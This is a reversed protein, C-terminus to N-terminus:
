NIDEHKPFLNDDLCPLMQSQWKEQYPIALQAEQGIFNGSEKIM